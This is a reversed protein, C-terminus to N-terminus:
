IVLSGEKGNNERNIVASATEQEYKTQTSGGMWFM